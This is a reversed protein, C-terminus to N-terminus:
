RNLSGSDFSRTMNYGDSKATPMPQLCGRYLHVAV